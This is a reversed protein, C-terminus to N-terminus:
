LITLGDILITCSDELSSVKIKRNLNLVVTRM